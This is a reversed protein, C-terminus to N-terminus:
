ALAGSERGRSLPGDTGNRITHNALARGVGCSSGADPVTGAGTAWLQAALSCVGPPLPMRGGHPSEGAVWSWPQGWHRQAPPGSVTLDRLGAQPPGAPHGGQLVTPLHALPGTSTPYKGARMGGVWIPNPVHPLGAPPLLKQCAGSNGLFEIKKGAPHTHVQCEQPGSDLIM